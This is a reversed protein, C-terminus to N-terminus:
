RRQTHDPFRVSVRHEDSPWNRVAFRDTLDGDTRPTSEITVTGDPPDSAPVHVDVGTLFSINRFIPIPGDANTEGDADADYVQVSSIWEERPATAETVVDTGDVTLEDREDTDGWWEADRNIVLAAHDEDREIIRDIGQGPVSTLLRVFHNSRVAPQRYFHNVGGTEKELVFEHYAEGDVDIPGWSGDAELTPTADPEDRLREGTDPDVEYVSLTANEIGVNLPFYAARGALTM